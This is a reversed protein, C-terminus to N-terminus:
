EDTLAGASPLVTVEVSLLIVPKTSPVVYLFPEVSLKLAIPAPISLVLGFSPSSLYRGVLQFLHTYSVPPLRSAVASGPAIEQHFHIYHTMRDELSLIHIDEGGRGDAKGLCSQPTFHADAGHISIHEQRKYM